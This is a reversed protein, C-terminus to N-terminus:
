EQKIDFLQNNPQQTFAPTKYLFKKADNEQITSRLMGYNIFYAYPCLDNSQKM